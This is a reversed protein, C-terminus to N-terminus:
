NGIAATVAMFKHSIVVCIYQTMTRSTLLGFHTGQAVILTDAPGHNRSLSWPLIQEKAKELM